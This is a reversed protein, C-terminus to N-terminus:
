DPYGNPHDKHWMWASEIIDELDPYQPKWGLERRIRDSSAVLAAPDGTRRPAVQAPIEHGTV